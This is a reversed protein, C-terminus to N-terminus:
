GFHLVADLFSGRNFGADSAAIATILDEESEYVPNSGIPDSYANIELERKKVIDSITIGIELMEDQDLNKYANIATGYFLSELMESTAPFNGLKTIGGFESPTFIGDGAGIFNSPNFKAHYTDVVLNQPLGANILNNMIADRLSGTSLAGSNNNFAIINTFAATMDSAILERTGSSSNVIDLKTTELGFSSFFANIDGTSYGTIESLMSTTVGYQKAIDFITNPESVHSLIFENAQQLTIGLSTLHSEASM